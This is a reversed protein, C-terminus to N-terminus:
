RQQQQILTVARFLFVNYGGGDDRGVTPLQHPGAGAPRQLVFAAPALHHINVHCRM